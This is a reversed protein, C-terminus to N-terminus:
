LFRLKICIKLFRDIGKRKVGFCKKDWNKSKEKWKERFYNDDLGLQKQYKELVIGLVGM